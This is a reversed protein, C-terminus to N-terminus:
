ATHAGPHNARKRTGAASEGGYLEGRIARATHKPYNISTKSHIMYCFTLIIIFPLMTSDDCAVDDIQPGRRIHTTRRSNAVVRDFRQHM